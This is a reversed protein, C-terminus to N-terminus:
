LQQLRYFIVPSSSDLAVTQAVNTQQYTMLPQWNVPQAISTAYLLEYTGPNAYLTLNRGPSAGAQPRLLPNSGVVVVEGPSATVNAYAAGESTNGSGTAAPVGIIASSRGAAAQFNVQAVQNTGSLPLNAATQLKVVLQSNQMQLSGAIIPSAFTLTPNLLAAGPWDLALQVNTVSSSSSVVLPLSGSQGSPVATAGVHFELFDGVYIVLTEAISSAPNVTDTVIVNVYNTTSAYAHGPLWSIIGNTPNITVGPPANTGLSFHLPDGTYNGPVTKMHLNGDPTATLGAFAAENSYGSQNGASDHSTAAFYYTTNEVLGPIATNTVLGVTIFNTYQHSTSGYHINYGTVAPDTSPIWTLTPSVTAVASWPLVATLLGPLFWSL